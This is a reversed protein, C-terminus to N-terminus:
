GNASEPRSAAAAAIDLVVVEVLRAGLDDKGVQPENCSALSPVELFSAQIQRAAEGHRAAGTGISFPWAILTVVISLV